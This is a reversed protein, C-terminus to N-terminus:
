SQGYEFAEKKKTNIISLSGQFLYFKLHFPICSPNCGKGAQEILAAIREVIAQILQIIVTALLIYETTSPKKHGNKKKKGM